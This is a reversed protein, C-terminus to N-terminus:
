GGEGSRRGRQRAEARTGRPTEVASVADHLPKRYARRELDLLSDGGAGNPSNRPWVIECGLAYSPGGGAADSRPAVGPAPVPMLGTLIAEV